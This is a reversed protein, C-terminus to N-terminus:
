ASVGVPGSKWDSAGTVQANANLPERKRLDSAPGAKLQSATSKM